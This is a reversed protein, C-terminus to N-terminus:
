NEYYTDERTEREHKKTIVYYCHKSLSIKSKHREIM